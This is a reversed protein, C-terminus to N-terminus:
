LPLGEVRRAIEDRESQTRHTTTGDFLWLGASWNRNRTEHGSNVRVVSTSRQRTIEMGYAWHEPFRVEQFAM